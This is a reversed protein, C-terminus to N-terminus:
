GVDLRYGIGQVTLIVDPNRATTGLKRRLSTVHVRLYQQPNGFQRGWVADFIERHTLARGRARGLTELICWEIPTFHVREGDRMATRAHPDVHLTGVSFAHASARAQGLREARRMLARARAAIELVSFPKTVYDDAGLDLLAVKEPASHRASLVIIPVASHERIRRCVEAGDMDPLGLDLIVLDPNTELAMAVGTAGTDAEVVSTSVAHLAIAVTCRVDPEDDVLLVTLPRPVPAAVPVPIRSRSRGPAASLEANAHM